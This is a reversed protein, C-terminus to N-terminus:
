GAWQVKCGRVEKEKTCQLTLNSVSGKCRGVFHNLFYTLHGRADWPRFKFRNKEFPFLSQLSSDVDAAGINVLRSGSRMRLKREGKSHQHQPSVPCEIPQNLVRIEEKQFDHAIRDMPNLLENPMEM